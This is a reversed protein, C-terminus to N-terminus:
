MDSLFSSNNIDLNLFIKGKNIIEADITCEISDNIDLDKFLVGVYYIGGM